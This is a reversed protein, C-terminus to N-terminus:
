GGTCDTDNRGDENGEIPADFTYPAPFSVYISMARREKKDPFDFGVIYPQPKPYRDLVRQCAEALMKWGDETHPVKNDVTQLTKLLEAQMVRSICELELRIQLEKPTM